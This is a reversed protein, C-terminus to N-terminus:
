RLRQNKVKNKNFLIDEIIPLYKFKESMSKM